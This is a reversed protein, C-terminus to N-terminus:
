LILNLKLMHPERFIKVFIWLYEVLELPLIDEKYPVTVNLGFVPNNDEKLDEMFLKLEQQDSLPFLKYVANVNLARFATNHMAPSLSHEVPNGIIGYIVPPEYIM